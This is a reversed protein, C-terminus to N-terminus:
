IAPVDNTAVADTFGTSCEDGRQEVQFLHVFFRDVLFPEFETASPLVPLGFRLELLHEPDIRAVHVCPELACENEAEFAVEVSAEGHEFCKTRLVRIVVIDDVFEGHGLEHEPHVVFRACMQLEDERAIGIVLLRALLRDIALLRHAPIVGGFEVACEDCTELPIESAAESQKFDKGDLIGQIVVDDVLERHGVKHEPHILFATGVELENERAIGIVLFRTLLGDVALRGMLSSSGVPVASGSKGTVDSYWLGLDAFGQFPEENEGSVGANSGSGNKAERGQSAKRRSPRLRARWTGAKRVWL